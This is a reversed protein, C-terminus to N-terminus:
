KQLHNLQKQLRKIKQYTEKQIRKIETLQRDAKEDLKIDLELRERDKKRQRTEKVDRVVEAKNSAMLLFIGIFIAELSVSFTLINIDFNFILWATFWITHFIVAWWSGLFWSVLNTIKEVLGKTKKPFKKINKKAEM